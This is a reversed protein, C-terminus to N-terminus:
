FLRAKGNCEERNYHQIFKQAKRPNFPLAAAKIRKAMYEKKTEFIEQIMERSCWRQKSYDSVCGILEDMVSFYLKWEYLWDALDNCLFVIDLGIMCGILEDLVCFYLIWEYLWDARRNCLFVIDM